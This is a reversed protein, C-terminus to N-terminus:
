MTSSPWTSSSFRSRATRTATSGKRPHPSCTPSPLPFCRRMSRRTPSPRRSSSGAAPPSRSSSFVARLRPSSSSSSAPRSARSCSPSHGNDLDPGPINLHSHRGDYHTHGIVIVWLTDEAVLRKRLEAVDAAIGERNSLGRMGALAPGDGSQERRRIAGPGRSDAFGYRETLAKHLKEVTGAFLKRHDDDGPLGCVILARAPELPRQRRAPRRNLITRWPPDALFACPWSPSRCAAPAFGRPIHAQHPRTM